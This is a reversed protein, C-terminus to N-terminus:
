AVRWVSLFTRFRLECAAFVLNAEAKSSKGPEITIIKSYDVNTSYNVTQIATLPKVDFVSSGPTTALNEISALRASAHCAV